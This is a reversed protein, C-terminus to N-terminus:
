VVVIMWVATVVTGVVLTWGVRKLHKAPPPWIILWGSMALMPLTVIALSSSSTYRGIVLVSLACIALWHITRPHRKQAAIVGRVAMTTAAFGILWTTWIEIALDSPIAGALLIPVCPVSLGVIGWLQGLLSRHNGAVALAFSTTALGLCGLLSIRVPNSGTLLAVCGCLITFGTLIVLRRTATPTSRQARSGRHGWAVLLPEHALFGTVSAIAVCVGPLSIGAILLSTAIPIGLIAYAGHEKPKLKAASAVTDPKANSLTATSM